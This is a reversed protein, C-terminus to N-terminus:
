DDAADFLEAVSGAKKVKGAYSDSVAELTERNLKPMSVDFPIGGRLVVQSLFMRIGSTMDLGLAKFTVEAQRKLKSDIQAKVVSTEAAM